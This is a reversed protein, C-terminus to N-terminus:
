EEKQPSWWGSFEWEELVKGLVVWGNESDNRRGLFWWRLYIRGVRLLIAVVVSRM